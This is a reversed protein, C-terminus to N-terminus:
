RPIQSKHYIMYGMLEYKNKSNDIAKEDKNNKDNKKDEDEKTIM